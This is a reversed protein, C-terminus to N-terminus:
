REGQIQAQTKERALMREAFDLREEVEEVRAQVQELDAVRARLDELDRLLDPQVTKGDLRRKWAEIAVFGAYLLMPFGVLAGIAMVVRVMDDM